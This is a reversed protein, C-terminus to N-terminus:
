IEDSNRFPLTLHRFREGSDPINGARTAEDNALLYWITVGSAILVLVAVITIWHM